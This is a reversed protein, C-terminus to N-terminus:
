ASEGGRPEDPTVANEIAITRAIEALRAELDRTKSYLIMGFFGLGVVSLYMFLDTGRGVGVWHAVTMTLDPAAVMIMGAVAISLVLVRDRLGSRLRSFYIYVIAVLMVILILQVPRM